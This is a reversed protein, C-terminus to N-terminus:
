FLSLCLGAIISSLTLAYIATYLTGTRLCLWSLTLAMLTHDLFNVFGLQGYFASQALIMMPLAMLGLSNIVALLLLGQFVLIHALNKLTFVFWACFWAFGDLNDFRDILATSILGSMSLSIIVLSLLWGILPLDAQGKQLLLRLNSGTLMECLYTLPIVFLCATLFTTLLFIAYFPPEEFGLYFVTAVGDIGYNALMLISAALLYKRMVLKSKDQDFFLRIPYRAELWAWEKSLNGTLQSILSNFQM